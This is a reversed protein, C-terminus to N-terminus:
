RSAEQSSDLVFDIQGAREEFRNLKLRAFVKGGFIQQDGISQLYSPIRDANLASGALHIEEGGRFLRIRRLWIGAFPHLALGELSALIRDNNKDDRGYFYNLAKRQGQIEQELHQIKEVLLVNKQREPNQKELESVRMNEVQQQLRLEAVESRATNGMWYSYVSISALCFIVVVLSLGVQRSQLPKPKDILVDQYLNIQQRM